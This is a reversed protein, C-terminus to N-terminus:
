NEANLIEDLITVVFEYSDHFLIELGMEAAMRDYAKEWEIPPPHLDTTNTPLPPISPLGRSSVEDLWFTFVQNMLDKTKSTDIGKQGIYVLDVFDKVRGSFEDTHRMYAHIKEAWMLENSSADIKLLKVSLDFGDVVPQLNISRSPPNAIDQLSLDITFETFKVTDIIMKLSLQVGGGGGMLVKFEENVKFRVHADDVNAPDALHDVLIQRMKRAASQQDQEFASRILNKTLLDLDKTSRITGFILEVAFGGKLVYTGPSNMFLRRLVFDFAIKKRIRDVDQSQLVGIEKARSSLYKIM